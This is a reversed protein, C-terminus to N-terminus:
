ILNHNETRLHILGLLSFSDAVLFVTFGLVCLVPPPRSPCKPSPSRTAAGDLPPHRFRKGSVSAVFDGGASWHAGLLSLEM